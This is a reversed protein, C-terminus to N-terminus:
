NLGRFVANLIWFADKVRSKVQEDQGPGRQILEPESSQYGYYHLESDGVQWARRSLGRYVPM